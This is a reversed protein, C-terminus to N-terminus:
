QGLLKQKQAAFEQETLAGEDRLKTLRELQSVVDSSGAAAGGAIKGDANLDVNMFREAMDYAQKIQEPSPTGFVQVQPPSANTSTLAIGQADFRVPPTAQPPVAPPPVAQGLGTQWNVDKNKKRWFM